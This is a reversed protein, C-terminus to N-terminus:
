SDSGERLAGHHNIIIAYRDMDEHDQKSELKPGHSVTMDHGDGWNGPVTSPRTSGNFGGKKPHKPHFGWINM